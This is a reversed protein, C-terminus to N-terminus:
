AAAEGLSIDATIEDLGVVKYRNGLTKRIRVNLKPKRSTVLDFATVTQLPDGYKRVYVENLTGEVLVTYSGDTNLKGLEGPIGDIVATVGRALRKGISVM